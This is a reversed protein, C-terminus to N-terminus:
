AAANGAVISAVAAELAALRTQHAKLAGIAISQVQEQKFMKFDHIRTGVVFLEADELCVRPITLAVTTGEIASVAGTVTPGDQSGRRCKVVTGVTFIAALEAGVDVCVEGRGTRSAVPFLRFVNPVFESITDVCGPLVAEVEQAIFGVKTHSGKDVKDIYEYERVELRDIIGTYYEPAHSVINTKIRRDSFIAFESAVVKSACNISVGDTSLQVDVPYAPTHTGVGLAADLFVSGSAHVDGAVDLECFPNSTGFGIFNSDSYLSAQGTGNSFTFALDPETYLLMVDTATAPGKFAANSMIYNGEANSMWGSFVAGNQYINGTFNIDGNVDLTFGANSDFGINVGLFNSNATLVAAGGDNVFSLIPESPDYLTVPAYASVANSLMTEGYVYLNSNITVIGDVELNSRIEKSSFVTVNSYNYSITEVNLSGLVTLNSTFFADSTANFVGHVTTDGELRTAGAVELNSSIGVTNSLAVAGYVALDNSLSAAGYVFLEGMLNTTNSATFTGDVLLNSRIEESAFVTVNSYNYSITEVNLSGLVTVDSEFFAANTSTLTGHMTTDNSLTTTGMVVLNSSVSVADSFAAAGLVDLNSSLALVGDISVNSLMAVDGGFTTGGNLVMAGQVTLSDSIQATGAVDLSHTPNAVNVGLNPGVSTLTVAGTTNRLVMPVKMTVDSRQMTVMADADSEVGFLIKQSAGGNVGHILLDGFSSNAFQFAASPAILFSAGPVVSSM